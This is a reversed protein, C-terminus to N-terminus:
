AHMMRGKHSRMNARGLRRPYELHELDKGPSYNLGSTSLISHWFHHYRRFIQNPCTHVKSGPDIRPRHVQRFEFCHVKKFSSGMFGWMHICHFMCLSTPQDPGIRELKSVHIPKSPLQWPKQPPSARSFDCRCCNWRATRGFRDVTWLTWLCIRQLRSQRLLDPAWVSLFQSIKQSIKHIKSPMQTFIELHLNFHKLQSSNHICNFVRCIYNSCLRLWNVMHKDFHQKFPTSAKPAALTCCHFAPTPTQFRRPVPLVTTFAPQSTPLNPFHMSSIHRFTWHISSM